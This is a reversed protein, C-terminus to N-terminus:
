FTLSEGPRLVRVEVDPAASAAARAFAAAPETLFPVRASRHFPRYTGWHIPVAIRPRLRRVAEAARVPDLHKGRGLNAGWGWIPVLALDLEPVLGNMGDFLDTDGAFYIRRSGLIAYGLAIEKGFPPRGGDHDAQTARVTIEGLRLEDGVDLEVADFRRIRDGLGRPVVFKPSGPLLRLSAPDLHDYHGHSILVADPRPVAGLPVARRLHTVRARLLPDTLLRTGDLEIDVTSHGVYGITAVHRDYPEKLV